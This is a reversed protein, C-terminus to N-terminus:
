IANLRMVRQSLIVASPFMAAGLDFKYRRLVLKTVVVEDSKWESNWYYPRETVTCTRIFDLLTM